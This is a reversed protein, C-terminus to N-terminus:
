AARWQEWWLVRPTYPFIVLASPFPAGTEGGGFRLRGRLFRVEGFRCYDWWWGTDVRAPVLCVVTAGAQSSEWAKKVWRGIESGYPPNMWCTGTWDQALGDQEATFFRPCKASDATACVDLTFDFENYLLNFLDRPTSWDDTGSSYHVGMRRSVAERVKLATPKGDESAEQWAEHLQAPEDLLPALERAQAENSNGLQPVVRVVRAADLLRYGHSKSLDFETSCYDGWSSYGLAAHAEGEYLQLLKTWLSAADRKVEDTLTRAELESLPTTVVALESV